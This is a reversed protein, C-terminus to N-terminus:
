IIRRLRAFIQKLTSQGMLLNIIVDFMRTPLYFSYRWFKSLLSPPLTSLARMFNDYHVRLQKDRSLKARLYQLYLYYPSVEPPALQAALEPHIGRLLTEQENWLARCMTIERSLSEATTRRAVFTNSRHLRYESLAEQARAIPTLLPALRMIIQDPSVKTPGEPPLPFIREAVQRRLSIGSTPPMHSVIGGQSLINAGYWGEPLSDSLPWVGERVRDHKVRIVRHVIFGRDPHALCTEVVKAVKEPLFLDDSDLFCVIEGRCARFLSNLASPHGGNRQQILQIRSDLKCYREVIEVSNDTSGDDCVILEWTSYTQAIVSELSEPLYEAYNYNAVLISVLPESGLARLEMPTLDCQGVDVLTNM